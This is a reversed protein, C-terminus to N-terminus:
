KFKDELANEVDTHLVPKADGRGLFKSARNNEYGVSRKYKNVVTLAATRNPSQAIDELAQNQLRKQNEEKIAELLQDKDSDMLKETNRYRSQDAIFANRKEQKELYGTIQGSLQKLDGEAKHIAEEMANRTEETHKLLLEEVAKNTDKEREAAEQKIGMQAQLDKIGQDREKRFEQVIGGLDILDKGEMKRITALTLKTGVEQSLVTYLDDVEKQMNVKEKIKEKDLLGWLKTLESEMETKYTAVLAPLSSEKNNLKTMLENQKSTRVQKVAEEVMETTDRNVSVGEAIQDADRFGANLPEEGNLIVMKNTVYLSDNKAWISETENYAIRETYEEIAEKLLKADRPTQLLLGMMKERLQQNQKELAKERTQIKVLLEGLTQKLFDKEGEQIQKQVEKLKQLSVEMKTPGVLRRWLGPKPSSQPVAIAEKELKAVMEKLEAKRGDLEKQREPETMKTKPLLPFEKFHVSPKASQEKIEIEAKTGKWEQQVQLQGKNEAENRQSLPSHTGAIQQTTLASGKIQSPLQSTVKVNSLTKDSSKAPHEAHAYTQASTHAAMAQDSNLEKSYSGSRLRDPPIKSQSAQLDPTIEPFGSM